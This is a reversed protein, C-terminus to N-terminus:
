SPQKASAAGSADNCPSGSGLAGVPQGAPDQEFSFYIKWSHRGLFDVATVDLDWRHVSLIGLDAWSMKLAAGIRNEILDTVSM